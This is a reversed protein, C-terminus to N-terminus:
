NHYMPKIGLSRNYVELASHSSLKELLYNETLPKISPRAGSLYMQNTIELTPLGGLKFGNEVTNVRTKALLIKNLRSSNPRAILKNKGIGQQVKTVADAFSVM